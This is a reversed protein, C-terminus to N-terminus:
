WGLLLHNEKSSAEALESVRSLSISEVSKNNEDETPTTSVWFPALGPSAVEGNPSLQAVLRGGDWLEVEHGDSLQKAAILAAADDPHSSLFGKAKVFRHGDIDLIYARYDRM